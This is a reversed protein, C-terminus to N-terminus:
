RLPVRHCPSLKKDSSLRLATLLHPTVGREQEAKWSHEWRLPCPGCTLLWVLQGAGAEARVEQGPLRSSWGCAPSKVDKLSVVFTKPHTKFIFLQTRPSFLLRPPAVDPPVPVKAVQQTCMLADQRATEAVWPSPWGNRRKEETQFSVITRERKRDAGGQGAM